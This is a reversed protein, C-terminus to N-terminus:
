RVAHCRWLRNRPCQIGWRDVSVDGLCAKRVRLRSKAFATILSGADRMHLDIMLVVDPRLEAAMRVVDAFSTAEAVLQGNPEKELLRNIAQRAV